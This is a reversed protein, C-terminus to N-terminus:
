IEEGEGLDAAFGEGVCPEGQTAVVGTMARELVDDGMEGRGVAHHKVEPRAVSPLHFVVGWRVYLRDVAGFRAFREM